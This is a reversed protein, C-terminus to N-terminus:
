AYMVKGAILADRQNRDASVGLYRETTTVSSHHLMEKVVRLAHDYGENSLKDFLARAASRRLTHCGEGRPDYGLNALAVQVAQHPAQWAGRIAGQPTFAPILPEDDHEPNFWDSWTMLEAALEASVPMEDVLRSKPVQVRISGACPNWDGWTLLRVESERLMLHIGLAVVMRNRPSGANELLFPFEEPPIRLREARPIRASKRGQMPDDQIWGMAKAHRFFARLNWLELNLTSAGIGEHKRTAFYSSVDEPTLSTVLNGPALKAFRRLTRLENSRTAPAVGEGLRADAFIAIADQLTLM